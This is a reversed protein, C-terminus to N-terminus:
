LVMPLMRRATAEMLEISKKARDQGRTAEKTLGHTRPHQKKRVTWEILMVICVLRYEQQRISIEKSYDKVLCHDGGHWVVVVAVVALLQTPGGSRAMGTGADYLREYLGLMCAIGFVGVAM